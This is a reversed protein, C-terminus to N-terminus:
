TFFESPIETEVDASLSPRVSHDLAQQIPPVGDGMEMEIPCAISVNGGTDASMQWEAEVLNCCHIYTVDHGMANAVPLLQNTGNLHASIPAGVDRTVALHDANIGAAMALTLLQGASSFSQTRLRRIDQPFQNAPGATGIGSAYGARMGSERLGETAARCRAM